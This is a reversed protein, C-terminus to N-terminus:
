VKVEAAILAGAKVLNRTPDPSPKWWKEDWPWATDMRHKSRKKFDSKRYDGDVLDCALLVYAAAAASIFGPGHEDDHESDFGEVEVQRQREAQILAIGDM